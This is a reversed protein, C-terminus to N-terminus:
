EVKAPEKQIQGVKSLNSDGIKRPLATFNLKPQEVARVADRDKSM